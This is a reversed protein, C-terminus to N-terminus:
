LRGVGSFKIGFGWSLYVFINWRGIILGRIVIGGGCYTSGTERNVMWDNIDGVIITLRKVVICILKYYLLNWRMFLGTTPNWNRLIICKFGITTGRYRLISINGTCARIFMTEIIYKRLNRRDIIFCSRRRFIAVFSIHAFWKLNFIIIKKRQVM